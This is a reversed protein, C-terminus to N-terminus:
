GYTILLKLIALSFVEDKKIGASELNEIAEAIEDELEVSIEKV